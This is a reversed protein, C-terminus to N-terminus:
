IRCALILPSVLHSLICYGRILGIVEVKGLIKSLAELREVAVFIAGAGENKVDARRVLAYAMDPHV